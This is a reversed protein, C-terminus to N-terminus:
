SELVEEYWLAVGLCGLCWCRRFGRGTLGGFLMVAALPLVQAMVALTGGARRTLRLSQGLPAPHGDILLPYLFVMQAEVAYFVLVFALASAYGSQFSALSALCMAAGYKAWGYVELSRGPITLPCGRVTALARGMWLAGQHFTPWAITQSSTRLGTGPDDYLEAAKVLRRRTNSFSSM